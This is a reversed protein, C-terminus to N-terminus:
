LETNQKKLKFLMYIGAFLNAAVCALTAPSILLHVVPFPAIWYGFWGVLLLASVAFACCMMIIRAKRNGTRMVFSLWFAYLVLPIIISISSLMSYGFLFTHNALQNLYDSLAGFGFIIIFPLVVILASSIIHKSKM